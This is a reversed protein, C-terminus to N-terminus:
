KKRLVFFWLAVIVVLFVVTIVIAWWYEELFSKSDDAPPAPAPAVDMTINEATGDTTFPGPLDGDLVYGDAEVGTVTITQGDYANLEYEGSADTIATFEGDETEYTVVAGEIPEGDADLVKGTVTFPIGVIIDVGAASEEFVIDYISEDVVIYGTGADVNTIVVTQPYYVVITYTGDATVIPAAAVGDIEYTITAGTGTGTGADIVTGGVTVPIGVEIDADSTSEDYETSIDTVVIYGTGADVDTIVVTQGIYAIIAYTGDITVIPDAEVGDIEYTITAGIEDGTGADFITGEVTFEIGVLIDVGEASDDEFVIDFVSDDVVIYGTGADVDTIRITDTTDAVIIFTGDTLTLVYGAVPSLEDENIIFSVEVGAMGLGTGADVVTGSVTLATVMEITAGTDVGGTLTSPLSDATYGLLEVLIVDVEDGDAVHITYKGGADANVYTMIGSNLTYWVTADTLDATDGYEVVTIVIDTLACIVLDVGTDNTTIPYYSEVGKTTFEGLVGGVSVDVIGIMEVNDGQYADITYVSSEVDTTGAVGNIEFSVAAVGDSVSTTDYFSVAGSITVAGRIDIDEWASVDSLNIVVPWDPRVTFDSPVATGTINYIEVVDYESVDIEYHWNPGILVSLPVGDGNITYWVAEDTPDTAPVVGYFSVKGSVTQVFYIEFDVVDLSATNRDFTDGIPGDIKYKAYIPDAVIIDTIIVEQADFATIKYHGDTIEAYQLAGSDITYEVLSADDVATGDDYLVDGEVYFPALGMYEYKVVSITAAYEDVDVDAAHFIISSSASDYYGTGGDGGSGGADDTAKDAGGAGGEYGAGG